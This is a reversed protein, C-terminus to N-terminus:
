VFLDLIVHSSGAHQCVPLVSLSASPQEDGMGFTEPCGSILSSVLLFEIQGHYDGKGASAPNTGTLLSVPSGTM